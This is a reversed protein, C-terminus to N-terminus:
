KKIIEIHKPTFINNEYTLYGGHHLTDILYYKGGMAKQCHTFAEYINNQQTHGVIQIYNKRFGDDGKNAKMLSKPRIWLPGQRPDDGYPDLTSNVFNFQNPKYLYLENLEDIITSKNWQPLIKNLFLPSLGAHSCIINDFQKAIQFLSKNENLINYADWKLIAQFGSYSEPVIYHHDHNGLLLTVKDPNDKKFQIIENINLLQIVPPIDFSDFYDGIFIFHSSDSEQKIINKWIHRGHIDGIFTLKM